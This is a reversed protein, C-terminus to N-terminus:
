PFRPGAEVLMGLAKVFSLGGSSHRVTRAIKRAIEEDDTTLNVNYAILFERAGIVTAGASGLEAPGVDPKRDPNTKIEEKLGEYEGQRILELRKHEPRRAAAEYFYVPYETGKRCAGRGPPRDGCM